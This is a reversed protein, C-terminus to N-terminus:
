PEEKRSSRQAPGGGSSGADTAMASADSARAIVVFLGGDACHFGTMGVEFLRRQWPRPPAEEAFLDDEVTLPDFAKFRPVSKVFRLNCASIWRLTEGLTHKSEHPHLYQDKFWAWRRRENKRDRLNVDFLHSRRGFLRFLVRRADTLLRGYRHYLGVVLHGGPRVLRALTSFGRFPDSTHHLVGLSMVVDFTGPRFAPKLLNMELFQVRSLAHANQFTHGLGLSAMSIDTAFVTRNGLSLFNSLQGTGCGCELVRAGPAIAEDLMRAFGGARAKDVLSAVDDFDDYGPFPTEEYFAKTRETVDPRDDTPESPAFLRPIGDEIAFLRGCALCELRRSALGLPGSCHPCALIERFRALPSPELGAPPPRVAGPLLSPITM